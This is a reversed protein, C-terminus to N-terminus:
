SPLNRNLVQLRTEGKDTLSAWQWGREDVTVTALGSEQLKLFLSIEEVSFNSFNRKRGWGGAISRLLTKEKTMELSV